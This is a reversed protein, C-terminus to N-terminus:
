AGMRQLQDKAARYLAQKNQVKALQAATQFSAIAETRSGSRLYALGLNYHGEAFNPDVQVAQNFSAAASLYERLALYVDGRENLAQLNSPDLRIAQDLSAIAGMLDNQRRRFNAQALLDNLLTQNVTPRPPTVVSPSVASPAIAPPAVTLQTKPILSFAATVPIGLNVGSKVYIKPNLYEDQLQAKADARGHIGIVQGASNFVPGGSMGPLTTNTYVLGYGDKLPQTAKATITGTTFNYISESLAETRAPFGAVYSVMGETVLQPDGLTAVAYPKSSRFQAIALDVTAHKQISGPTIAYRQGDATVVEYTSRASLVHAATLVTYINGEKRLIVGSGSTDGYKIQVTVGKAITNVENSTLAYVQATSTLVLSTGMMVATASRYLSPLM